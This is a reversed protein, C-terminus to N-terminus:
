FCVSPRHGQYLLSEGSALMRLSALLVTPTHSLWSPFPGYWHDCDVSYNDIRPFLFVEWYLYSPHFRPSIFRGREHM